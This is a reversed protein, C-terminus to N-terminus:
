RIMNLTMEAKRAWETAPFFDIVELLKAKAKPIERNKILLSAIEYHAEPNNKFCSGSISKRFSSAASEFSGRTKQLQGLAFWAPCYKADATLSHRLYEEELAPKNLTKYISSLNYYAVQIYPYILDRTTEKLLAEAERYEKQKLKLNGLNARAATFKPNLALARRFAAEALKLEERAVYALGLDNQISPSKPDLRSAETLASLAEMYRGEMLAESGSAHYVGVSKQEATEKQSQSACGAALSLTAFLSLFYGIRM